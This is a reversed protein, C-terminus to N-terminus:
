KIKAELAGVRVELAGRKAVENDLRNYIANTIGEVATLREDIHEVKEETGVVRDRIFRLTEFLEEEQKKDM